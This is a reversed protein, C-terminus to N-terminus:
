SPNTKQHARGACNLGRAQAKRGTTAQGDTPGPSDEIAVAVGSGFGVGLVKLDLGTDTHGTHEYTFTAAGGPPVQLDILHLWVLERDLIVESGRYGRVRDLLSKWRAPTIGGAGARM